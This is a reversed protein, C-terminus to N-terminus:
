RTLLRLVVGDQDASLKVVLNIESEVKRQTMSSDNIPSGRYVRVQEM